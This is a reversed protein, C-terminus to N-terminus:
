EIMDQISEVAVLDQAQEEIYRITEEILKAEAQEEQEVAANAKEMAARIKGADYSVVRGDRKQVKM